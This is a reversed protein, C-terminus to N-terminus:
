IFLKTKVNTIVLMLVLNNTHILMNIFQEIITYYRASHQNLTIFMSKNIYIYIYIYNLKIYILHLTKLVVTGHLRLEADVIM